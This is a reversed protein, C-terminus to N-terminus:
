RGRFAPTRKDRIASLGEKLDDSGWCAAIRPAADPKQGKGIESLTAKMGNVALPAGALILGIVEDLTSDLGARPVTRDLYGCQGLMPADFVEALMYIRRTAQIGIRSVARTLGGVDYHIGIRTAPVWLDIDDAGIRFDCALALEVAGGRVKGGIRALTPVPFSELKDALATLPNEDWQGEGSVDSLDVGGSFVRDGAGTLILARIPAAAARDLATSIADLDAMALANRKAPNDITIRAVADAIELHIASM